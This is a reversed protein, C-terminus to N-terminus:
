LDRRVGRGVKCVFTQTESEQASQRVAAATREEDESPPPDIQRWVGTEDDWRTIVIRATVGEQSMEREIAHRAADLNARSGAYVFLRDEDHTRVADAPLGLADHGDPRDALDVLRELTGEVQAEVDATLRWDEHDSM